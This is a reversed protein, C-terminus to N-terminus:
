PQRLIKSLLVLKLKLRLFRTLKPLWLCSPKSKKQRLFNDLGPFYDLGKLVCTQGFFKFEM